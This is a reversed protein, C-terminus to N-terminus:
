CKQNPLKSCQKNAWIGEAQRYQCCAINSGTETARLAQIKWRGLVASLLRLKNYFYQIPFSSFHPCFCGGRERRAPVACRPAGIKQRARASLMKKEGRQRQALKAVGSLCANSHRMVTAHLGTLRGRSLRDDLRRVLSPCPVLRECFFFMLNQFERTLLLDQVGDERSHVVM